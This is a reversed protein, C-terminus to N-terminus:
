RLLGAQDLAVAAWEALRDGSSDDTWAEGHGEYAAAIVECARKRRADAQESEDMTEGDRLSPPPPLPPALSARTRTIRFPSDTPSTAAVGSAPTLTWRVRGGTPPCTPRHPPALLSRVEITEGTEAVANQVAELLCPGCLAASNSASNSDVLHLVAVASLPVEHEAECASEESM